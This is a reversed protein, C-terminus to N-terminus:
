GYIIKPLQIEYAFGNEIFVPECEFDFSATLYDMARGLADKDSSSVIRSWLGSYEVAVLGGEITELLEDCVQKNQEALTM